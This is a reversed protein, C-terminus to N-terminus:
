TRIDDYQWHRDAKKMSSCDGLDISFCLSNRHTHRRDTHPFHPLPEVGMKLNTLWRSLSTGRESIKTGQLHLLYTGGFRRNVCSECPAVDWFVANKMTVATSVEFRVLHLFNWSFHLARLLDLSITLELANRFHLQRDKSCPWYIKRLAIV